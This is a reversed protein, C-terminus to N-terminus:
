VRAGEDMHDQISFVGLLLTLVPLLVPNGPAHGAQQTGFQYKYSKM